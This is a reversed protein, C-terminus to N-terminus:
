AKKVSLLVKYRGAHLTQVNGFLDRMWDEYKLFPNAVLYFRGGPRTRRHAAAVFAEAVDLVVRGGVHFPPNSIVIDYNEAESLREDVDSHLILADLGARAFSVRASEVSALQHELLTVQAGERALPLSLAGYGAGLDLVRAGEVDAPLHELLLRSAPDVADASFVGPWIWFTLRRGRLEVELPEPGEPAEPAPGSSRELVAVRAGKARLVVEGEGVIERAWGLYREFGLKKDGAVWLLGGPELARAAARIQARVWANGRDAGFVLLATGYAAQPVQWPLAARVRLGPHEAASAELARLASRRDEWAHVELGAALLPLLAVGVGPNLDIARTGRPEVADALARYAPDELGPAGRKIWLPGAPTPLTTLSHYEALEM